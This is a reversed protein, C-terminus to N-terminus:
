GMHRYVMSGLVRAFPLPMRRELYLFLRYKMSKDDLATLGKIEPYYFYFVDYMDAGWRRKFDLLGQNDITTKGFDAYLYGQRCATEIATFYLLHNPRVPLYAPDNGIHEMSMTDRYTFTILGAIPRGDLEALFLSLHRGMVRWMNTFFRYPQIPFGLRKRTQAHMRYYEKLEDEREAVRVTVGSKLAKRVSKRVCDKHFAKSIKEFGGELSLVHIKHYSNKKLRGDDVDGVSRFVRLEYYSTGGNTSSMLRFIGDLLVSFDERGSVLPDCYSTFPLSVIRRGTFRSKVICFPVASVINSHVDEIVLAKPQLQSYTQQIVRLWSSHHYISGYRHSDVFADWRRDHLPDIVRSTGDM